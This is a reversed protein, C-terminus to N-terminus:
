YGAITQQVAYTAKHGSASMCFGVILTQNDPHLPRLASMAPHGNNVWLPCRASLNRGLDIFTCALKKYAPVTQHLDNQRRFCASRVKPEAATIEFDSFITRQRQKFLV